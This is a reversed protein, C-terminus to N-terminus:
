RHRIRDARRQLSELLADFGRQRIINQFQRQYSGATSVGDIEMDTIIWEGSRQEMTYNVPTRVNDLRVTTEVFAEGNTVRIDGYSVEARYIELRNMSQDRVIVAFLEVFEERESESIEDYTNDLAYAAMSRYDIMDNIIGQLERLQEDTYETGEPGLLEKIQEDREELLSRIESADSQAHTVAVSVPQVGAWVILIPFWITVLTTMKTM